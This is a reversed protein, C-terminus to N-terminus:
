STSGSAASGAAARSALVTAITASHSKISGAVEVMSGAVGITADLASVSATHGAIGVGAALMEDLYRRIAMAARLTRHLLAIALPVIVVVVIALTVAWVIHVANM